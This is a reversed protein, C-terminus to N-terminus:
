KVRVDSVTSLLDASVICFDILFRQGLSDGYWTCKLIKKHHFFLNMICLGYTACFRLLCKGNKSIDPDGHQGIVGKWTANDIGVHANFDGSLVLFESLTAKGLAVKVEDLFTCRITTQSHSQHLLM